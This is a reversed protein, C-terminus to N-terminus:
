YVKVRRKFGLWFGKEATVNFTKRSLQLPIQTKEVPVIEFHSLIYFFLTKTELLAFRSGICNRPGVGFPLFTYPNIKMKNEESFREPDFRDPEPWYQPDRHLGMIPLWIVANKELHVPKEDPTKPEITYPKTCVRDVAVGAPWKRLAESVVMDMYKMGSVAEYTLKGNCTELTDDVEQILRQQIDPNVGLEYAMFCMLSSVTEFGAFFFILAQSTIDQDTLELKHTKTAKGIESEQVTAFGADQQPESEEHKLGNKRAEMLLNIMDPRVIRHKERSEINSKVLKSFFQGVKESFLSVNLIKCVKPILIFAFLKITMWTGTLNTAEKGMMYFENKREGLSDCEIGFATNAIVDNTFRTLTDKMEVTILDENKKLFHNVFQEGSQSILSFMYKMKSSTFAPSLTTRMERWGQGTLAVLNKGWLPDVDESVFVPHDVFHDFDKVAIQKILDPDTIVLTPAFFQYIGSYRSNPFKNYVEQVMEAFCQKRAIMKWSNGFITMNREQNVGKELWYKNPLVVLWYYGLVVLAVAVVLWWM